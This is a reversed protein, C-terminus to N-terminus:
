ANPLWLEPECIGVNFMLFSLADEDSELHM